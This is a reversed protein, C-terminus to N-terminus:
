VVGTFFNSFFVFNDVPPAHIKCLNELQVRYLQVGECSKIVLQMHCEQNFTNSRFIAGLLVLNPNM